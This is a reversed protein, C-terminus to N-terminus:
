SLRLGHLCWRRARAYQDPILFPQHAACVLAVEAAMFQFADSDRLGNAMAFGQEQGLDVLDLNKIRTIGFQDSVIRWGVDAAAEIELGTESFVAEGLPQEISELTELQERGVGTSRECSAHSLIAM